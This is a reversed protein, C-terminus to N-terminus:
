SCKGINKSEPRQRVPIAPANEPAMHPWSSNGTAFLAGPTTGRDPRRTARLVGDAPYQPLQGALAVTENQPETARRPRSRGGPAAARAIRGAGMGLLRGSRASELVRVDEGITTTGGLLIARDDSHPWGTRRPAPAGRGRPKWQGSAAVCGRQETSTSVAPERRSCCRRRSAPLDHSNQTKTLAARRDTDPPTTSTEGGSAGM